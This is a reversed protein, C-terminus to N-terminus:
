IELYTLEFNDAIREHGAYGRPNCVVRTEGIMYDSANHMHGHCWVRIQPRDQIFQDLESRFAGNLLTESRYMQAVSASSPAHHGVVIYSGPAQTVTEIYALMQAHDAASDAPSWTASEARWRYRVPVRAGEQDDDHVVVRRSVMRDSNLIVRFDSMSNRVQMLTVPDGRNMDTWLTGGVFTHGRHSWTNKELIHLNGHPLHQRLISESHAVDGSYHEHNGMVYVVHPFEQCVEDFFRRYEQARHASHAPRGELHAAVCVDGALILVDASQENRLTISGFELHIDSGLALKLPSPEM